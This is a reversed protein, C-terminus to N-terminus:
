MGSVRGGCYPCLDFDTARVITMDCANCYKVHKRKETPFQSPLPNYKMLQQKSMPRARCLPCPYGAILTKCVRCRFNGKPDIM